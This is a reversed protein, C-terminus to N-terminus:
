VPREFFVPTHEGVYAGLMNYHFYDVADLESMGDVEMLIDIVKDQDYCVLAKHCQYVVGIIAEDFHPETLFLLDECHQAALEERISM